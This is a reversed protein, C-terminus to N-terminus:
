WADETMAVNCDKVGFHVMLWNIVDLHHRWFLYLGDSDIVCQVDEATLGFHQVLWKVVHLHGGEFPNQCYTNLKHQIKQLVAM